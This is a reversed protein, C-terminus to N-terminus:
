GGGGVGGKLVPFLGVDQAVEGLKGHEDGDGEHGECSEPPLIDAEDVCVLVLVVDLDEDVYGGHVDGLVNHFDEDVLLNRVGGNDVVDADDTGVDVADSDEGGVELNLADELVKDTISTESAKVKGVFYEQSETEEDASGAAEDM